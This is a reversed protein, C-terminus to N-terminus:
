GPFGLCCRGPCGTLSFEGAWLQTGLWPPAPFLYGAHSGPASLSPPQPTRRVCSGSALWPLRCDPRQKCTAPLLLFSHLWLFLVCGPGALVVPLGRGAQGSRPWRLLEPHPPLLSVHLQPLLFCAPPPQKSVSAKKTDLDFWGDQRETGLPALPGQRSCLTPSCRSRSGCDDMRPWSSRPLPSGAGM